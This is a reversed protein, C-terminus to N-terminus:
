PDKDDFESFKILQLQGVLHLLVHVEAHESLMIRATVDLSKGGLFATSAMHLYKLLHSLRRVLGLFSM